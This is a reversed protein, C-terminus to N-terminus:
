WRRARRCIRLPLTHQLGDVREDELAMHWLADLAQHLAAPQLRRGVADSLTDLVVQSPIERRDPYTSRSTSVLAM